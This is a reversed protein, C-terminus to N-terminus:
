LCEKCDALAQAHVQVMMQIKPELINVLHKAEKEINVLKDAGGRLEILATHRLQGYKLKIAQMEAPPLPTRANYQFESECRMRWAVLNTRLVPGIGTVVMNPTIDLASEFGYAVLTAAKVAGIGLIKHDRILKSDLFQRLQAERKVAELGRMAVIEDANAKQFSQYAIELKPRLEEVNTKYATILSRLRDLNDNLERRSQEVKLSRSENEREWERKQEAYSAWAREFHNLETSYANFKLRYEAEEKSQAHQYGVEAKAVWAAHETQIAKVTEGYEAVLKEHANQQKNLRELKALREFEKRTKREDSANKSKKQWILSFVVLMGVETCALNKLGFQTSVCIAVVCFISGFGCVRSDREYNGIQFAALPELAPAKPMAPFKPPFLSPKPLPVLPPPPQPSNLNPPVPKSFPMKRGAVSPLALASVNKKMLDGLVIRQIIAWFAAVNVQRQDEGSHIAASIFFNPSGRDVLDCWPCKNLGNWFKHGPDYNCKKQAARLSELHHVWERGSPRADPKESYPLFAREFLAVLSPPLSSLPLTHPPAHIGRQWTQPSFAFLHRQIAEHIEFHQKNQPVGAFPHRGMFLLEFILVALGFRDHNKTRELSHYGKQGAHLQLEPPTWLQIGVDCLFKTNKTKIQYSDCDILRVEGSPTVLLNKENVDAMLVENEHITEFAAACNRAVHILFDWAATPFEIQRDRPGYLKHIEKGTIKPMLFGGATTRNKASYLIAKPWASINQLEMNGSRCMHLLKETKNASAPIHYIKALLNPHHPLEYISGEGGPTTLESGM